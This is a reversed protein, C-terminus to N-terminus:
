AYHETLLHFCWVLLVLVGILLAYWGNWSRFLPIPDENM